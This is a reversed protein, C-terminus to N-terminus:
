LPRVSASLAMFGSRHGLMHHQINIDRNAKGIGGAVRGEEGKM